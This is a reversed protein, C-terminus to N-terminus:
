RLGRGRPLRKGAAYILVRRGDPFGYHLHSGAGYRCDPLGPCNRLTGNGVAEQFLKESRLLDHLVPLTWAVEKEETSMARLRGCGPM